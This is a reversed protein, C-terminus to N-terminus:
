DESLTFLLMIKRECFMFRWFWVSGRSVCLEVGTVLLEVQM